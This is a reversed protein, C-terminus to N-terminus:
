DKNTSKEDRKEKYEVGKKTVFVTVISVCATLILQLSDKDVYQSLLSSGAVAIVYQKM